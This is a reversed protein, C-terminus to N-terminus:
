NTNYKGPSHEPLSPMQNLGTHLSAAVFAWLPDGAVAVVAPNWSENWSYLGSSAVLCPCPAEVAVTDVAAAATLRHFRFSGLTCHLIGLDWVQIM